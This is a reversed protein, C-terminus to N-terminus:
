QSRARRRKAANKELEARWSLTFGAADLTAQGATTVKEM